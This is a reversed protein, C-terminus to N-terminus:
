PIIIHLIYYCRKSFKPQPCIEHIGLLVNPYGSCGLDLMKQFSKKVTILVTLTNVVGIKILFIIMKTTKEKIDFKKDIM